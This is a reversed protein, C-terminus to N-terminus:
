RIVSWDNLPPPPPPWRQTVVVSRLPLVTIVRVTHLQSARSSRSSSSLVWECMQVWEKDWQTYRVPAPSDRSHTLVAEGRRAEGQTDTDEWAEGWGWSWKGLENMWQSPHVNKLVNLWIESEGWSSRSRPWKAWQKLSQHRQNDRCRKKEKDKLVLWCYITCTCQAAIVNVTSQKSNVLRTWCLKWAYHVKKHTKEMRMVNCWM